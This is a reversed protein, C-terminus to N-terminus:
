PKIGLMLAVNIASAAMDFDAFSHPCDDFNKGCIICAAGKSQSGKAKLYRKIMSEGIRFKPLSM